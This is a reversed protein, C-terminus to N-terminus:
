TFDIQYKLDTSDLSNVLHHDLITKNEFYM